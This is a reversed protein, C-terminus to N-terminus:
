NSQSLVQSVTSSSVHVRLKDLWEQPVKIGKERDFQKMLEGVRPGEDSVLYM